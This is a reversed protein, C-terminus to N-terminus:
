KIMNNIDTANNLTDQNFINALISRVFSIITDKFILAIGILVAIIIVIEVTGMGSEEKVLKKFVKSM